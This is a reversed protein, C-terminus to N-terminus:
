GRARSRDLLGGAALRPRSVSRGLPRSLRDGRAARTGGPRLAGHSLRHTPYRLLQRGPAVGFDERGRGQVPSPAHHANRWAGPRPAALLMNQVAPYISAGASRTPAMDGENLCAVIWIPAEHFHDTLYAVADIQRDYQERTVGPPPDSGRYIPGVVQDLAKRYYAQVQRKPEQDKVVLFRCHQRNGGNAASAEATLIEHVLEDPVPDPKLRRMARTSHIIEFLGAADSM